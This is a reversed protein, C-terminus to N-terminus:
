FRFNETGRWGITDSVRPCSLTGAMQIKILGRPSELVSWLKSVESTFFCM